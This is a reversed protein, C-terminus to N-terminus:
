RQGMLSDRFAISAHSHITSFARSPSSSFASFFFVRFIEWDAWTPSHPQPATPRPLAKLAVQPAASDGGARCGGWPWRRGWGRSCGGAQPGRLPSATGLAAPSHGGGWGVARPGVVGCGWGVAPGTGTRLRHCLLQSLVVVVRPAALLLLLQLGLTLLGAGCGGGVTGGLHAGGGVGLFREEGPHPGGTSLAGWPRRTQSRGIPSAGHARDGTTWWHTGLPDGISRGGYTGGWTGGIHEAEKPAM